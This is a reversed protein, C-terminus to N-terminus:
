YAEEFVIDRQRWFMETKDARVGFTRASFGRYRTKVAPVLTESHEQQGLSRLLTMAMEGDSSHPM